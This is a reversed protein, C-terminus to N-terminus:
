KKLRRKIKWISAGLAPLTFTLTNQYHKWLGTQTRVNPNGEKWVGGFAELETNLVEEYIGAVPVGITFDRREVPTMNFICILMDGKDNKRIFSLVSEATNDADIIELGEYSDDIQWLAKHEKYFQNLHSTFGQMKLNLKDEEDLNGWELEHDYKWELFQGFESGMFLLKKGPHCIQYTYLTRLGAFQNYRDGWMKHMMSKKGHVVEDHSFPLIFNENFAYMFSFTVLNFDYQRYIPDEAFFRLIDNMWGMNWKYDFGLGGDAVPRSVLPWSTSEEAIMMVDPHYLHTATNLRQLFEIAELNEKGGYKNAVWEGDRRNYDLYLMSAVADVRIGDIHYMDLWFMASSVLFSIVEYRTYDFVYTGWEKHEGKRTDAYEYCCTGDFKGLSHADRPFHAPVWDLIVGIGEQHCKDIFYMFDKPNGYRVTPAFYGTVQYGWSGDYPYETLPMFEIHTFGMEKVYPILKDALEIYSLSSGDEKRMWSGAHVEYINLPCDRHNTESKHKIWTNDNWNYGDIDYVVTANDPRMQFCFGYPDSKLVKEHTPTEVCYKYIEGQQIGEIFLEWVGPESIKYMFNATKDWGNFDGVVSVSLANPAWVRFVVGDRDNWKVFHSGLLEYARVADGDHFLDLPYRSDNLSYNM